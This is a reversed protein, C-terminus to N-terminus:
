QFYLEIYYIVRPSLVTLQNCILINMAKTLDFADDNPIKIDDLLLFVYQYSHQMLAPQIMYMSETVKKGINEIIKCQSYIYNIDQEKSWFTTELRSAYIYIVCDWEIVKDNTEVKTVIPFSSKKSLSKLNHVVIDLRDPRGLGPIVLLGRQQKNILDNGLSLEVLILSFIIGILFYSNM